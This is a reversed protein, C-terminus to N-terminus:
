EMTPAAGPLLYRLNLFVMNNNANLPQGAAVSWPNRTLYSYQGMFQLAGYRPDKWFTNTFGFTAEQIARNQSNPSGAYGYGVPKGNAPDVAVNRGFYTGGYYAYLLLKGSPQYEFGSVTSAAHVLSPSGDGRVILDPGQGFLYRGGGNSYFNNTILRFNKVLELNLNVSGGGGQKTFRTQTVPNYFQFGSWLGAFEIHMNRGAVRPDFAIKGIVDPRQNPVGFTNGGTNVQSSYASALASPLTVVGGGASGGGYQESAEVALGMTIRPAAHYVFRFGPNRAWVLGLQYNVDIDQSYFLDAPLPSLGVRNPTLLSWSQGGLIEYKGKKVDVWYLRMRLSNSNSSVAANGPSFGLFDSELYGLVYAGHVKADVRLGVRSNQASFRFEGLQGPVTNAFPTSGFNTGISSGGTRTRYVTTFDMFGVPTISASGVHLQLPSSTDRLPTIQAPVAAAPPVVPTTGAVEGLSTPRPRADAAAHKRQELAQRMENIQAQQAAILAKLQAIDDATAVNDAATCLGASLVLLVAILNRKRYM